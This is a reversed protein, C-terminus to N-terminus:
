NSGAEDGCLCSFIKRWQYNPLNCITENSEGRVKENTTCNKIGIEIEELTAYSYSLRASRDYLTGLNLLIKEKLAKDFLSRNSVPVNM